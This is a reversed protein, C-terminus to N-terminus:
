QNDRPLDNPNQYEAPARKAGADAKLFESTQVEGGKSFRLRETKEIQIVKGDHIIIEVAGFQLSEVYRRVVELWNQGSADPVPGTPRRRDM